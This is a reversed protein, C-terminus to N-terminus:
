IKKVLESLVDSMLKPRDELAERLPTHAWLGRINEVLHKAVIEHLCDPFDETQRLLEAVVDHSYSAIRTLHATLNGTALVLLQELGHYDAFIILRAHAMCEETIFGKSIEITSVDDPLIHSGDNALSPSVASTVSSSESADGPVYDEDGDVSDLTEGASLWPFTGDWLPYDRIPRQSVTYSGTYAFETFLAVTREDAEWIVCRELAERMNGNVLVNLSRSM